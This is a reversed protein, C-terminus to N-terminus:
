RLDRAVYAAIMAAGFVGFVVTATIAFTTPKTSSYLNLLNSLAAGLLVGGVTGVYKWLSKSSGRFLYRAAQRVDSASVIDADQRTATRTAELSLSRVYESISEEMVDFAQDSFPGHESLLRTRGEARGVAEAFGPDTM